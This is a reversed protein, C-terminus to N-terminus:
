GAAGMIMGFISEIFGFALNRFSGDTLLSILVGGMTVVAIIGLAYEATAMGAELERRSATETLRRRIREILQKM